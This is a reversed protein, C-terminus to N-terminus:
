LFLSLTQRISLIWPFANYIAPAWYICTSSIYAKLWQKLAHSIPLLWRLIELAVYSSWLVLFFFTDPHPHLLSWWTVCHLPLKRQRTPISTPTWHTSSHYSHPLLCLFSLKHSITVQTNHCWITLLSYLHMLETRGPNTRM